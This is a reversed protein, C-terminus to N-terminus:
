RCDKRRELCPEFGKDLADHLSEWGIGHPQFM